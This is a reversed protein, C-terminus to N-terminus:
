QVLGLQSMMGAVDYQRREEAIRGEADIRGFVAGRVEISRDTAPIQGSPGILPGKHTGSFTYEAGYEDGDTFVRVLTFAFDPFAVFFDEFDKALADAGSLPEPYWPDSVKADPRYVSAFAKTDHRNITEFQRAVLKEVSQTTTTATMAEEKREAPIAGANPFVLPPPPTGSRANRGHPPFNAM